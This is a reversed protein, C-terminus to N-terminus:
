SRLSYQDGTLKSLDGDQVQILLNNMLTETVDIELLNPDKVLDGPLEDFVDYREQM